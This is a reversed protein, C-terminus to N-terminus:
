YNYINNGTESTIIIIIIIIIIFYHSKYLACIVRRM